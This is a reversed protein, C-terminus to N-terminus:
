ALGAPAPEEVRVPQNESRGLFVDRYAVYLLAGFYPLLLPALWGLSLLVAALGLLMVGLMGSLPVPNLRCGQISAAFAPPVPPRHLVLMPLLFWQGFLLMLSMVALLALGLLGGLLLVPGLRAHALLPSAPLGEPSIPEYLGFEVMMGQFAAVAPQWSAAFLGLLAFVVAALGVALMCDRNDPLFDGSQAPQSYDAFLALRVYITLSLPAIFLLAGQRFWDWHSQQAIWALLLIGATWLIWRLPRRVLLALAETIWRRWANPELQRPGLADM